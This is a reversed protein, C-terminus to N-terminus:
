SYLFHSIFVLKKNNEVAALSVAMKVWLVQPQESAEREMLGSFSWSSTAVTNSQLGAFGIPLRTSFLAWEHHLRVGFRGM